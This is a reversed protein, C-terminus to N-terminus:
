TPLHLLRHALTRVHARVHASSQTHVHAHAHPCSNSKIPPFTNFMYSTMRWPTCRGACCITSMRVPGCPRLCGASPPMKLRREVQSSSPITCVVSACTGVGSSLRIPDYVRLKLAKAGSASALEANCRRIPRIRPLRIIRADCRSSPGCLIGFTTARSGAASRM